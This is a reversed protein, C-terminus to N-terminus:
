SRARMRLFHASANLYECVKYECMGNLWSFIIFWLSIRLKCDADVFVKMQLTCPREEAFSASLERLLLTTNSDAHNLNSIKVMVIHTYSSSHCCVAGM